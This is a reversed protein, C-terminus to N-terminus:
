DSLGLSGCIRILPFQELRSQPAVARLKLPRWNRLGIILSALRLTATNRDAPGDRNGVGNYGGLVRDDLVDLPPVTSRGITGSHLRALDFGPEDRM